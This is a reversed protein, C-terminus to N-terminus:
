RCGASAIKAKTSSNNGEKRLTDIRFTRGAATSEKSSPDVPYTQEAITIQDGSSKIAVTRPVWNALANLRVDTIHVVKALLSTARLKLLMEPNWSTSRTMKM